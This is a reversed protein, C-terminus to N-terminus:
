QAHWAVPFGVPRGPRVGPAGCGWGECPRRPDGPRAKTRCSPSTRGEGTNPSDTLAAALATGGTDVVIPVTYHAAPRALQGYANVPAGIPLSKSAVVVSAQTM